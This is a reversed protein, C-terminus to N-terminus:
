FYLSYPLYERNIFTVATTNVLQHTITKTTNTPSVVSCGYQVCTLLVVVLPNLLSDLM